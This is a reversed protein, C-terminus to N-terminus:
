SFSSCFSATLDSSSLLNINLLLILDHKFASNAASRWQKLAINGTVTKSDKAINSKVIVNGNPYAIVVKLDSKEADPKLDDVNM